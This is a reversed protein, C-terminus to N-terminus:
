LLGSIDPNDTDFDDTVAIFRVNKTAFYKEIYFGTDIANRGLRSLDKVIVCDINGNNIDSLLRQFAEREFNMGSAGNDIYTDYLKMHINRAIYDDLILKQNDISNGKQNSDEVSLRIYQATRIYEAVRMAKEPITNKRSKRAM